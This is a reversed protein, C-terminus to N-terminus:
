ERLVRYRVLHLIFWTIAYAIFAHMSTWGQTYIMMDHNSLVFEGLMGFFAFATIDLFSFTRSLEKPLYLYWAVGGFLIIFMVEIPVVGIAYASRATHWYGLIAGGNEIVFDFVLLFVALLFGNFIRVPEARNANVEILFWVFASSMLTLWIIMPTVPLYTFIFAYASFLLVLSLLKGYHNHLFSLIKPLLM